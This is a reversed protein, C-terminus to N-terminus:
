LFFTFLKILNLYFLFSFIKVSFNNKIIMLIKRNRFVQYIFHPKIKLQKSVQSCMFFKILNFKLLPYDIM